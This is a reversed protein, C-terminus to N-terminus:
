GGAVRAFRRPAHKKRMCRTRGDLYCFSLARRPAATANRGSRHWVHNHLVIAEGARVEVWRAAAAADGLLEPPINGGMPRVLGARHSGPVVQMAGSAETADDLATWISLVPDRDLGWFLGGDQHWPLETGGGAAKNMLMARYLAVDPGIVAEAVRVLQPDVIFSWMVEDLELKEVKRYAPSPGIWGKRLELDDYSGSASDHQYFLGDPRARGLMLDDARDRLADLREDSLVRGLPAWGDTALRALVPALDLVGNGYRLETSGPTWGLIMADMADLPAYALRRDVRRNVARRSFRFAECAELGLIQRGPLAGRFDM